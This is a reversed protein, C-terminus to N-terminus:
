QKTKVCNQAQRVGHQDVEAGRMHSHVKLITKTLTVYTVDRNEFVMGVQGSIILSLLWTCCQGGVDSLM